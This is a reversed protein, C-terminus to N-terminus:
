VFPYVVFPVAAKGVIALAVLGLGVVFTVILSMRRTVASYEVLDGILRLLHRGFMLLWTDRPRTRPPRESTCWGQTLVMRNICGQHGGTWRSARERSSRWCSYQSTRHGLVHRSALPSLAGSRRDTLSRCVRGSVVPHRGVAAVALLSVHMNGGDTVGTDIPGRVRVRHTHDIVFPPTTSSNSTAWLASPSSSPDATPETSLPQSQNHRPPSATPPPTLPSPWNSSSPPSAVSAGNAAGTTTPTNSGTSSRTNSSQAPGGATSASAVRGTSGTLGASALVARFARSRFQSGRDSHVVVTGDPQRRAIASRLASTALQATMRDALSYGVIRNSFVDKLACCYLKGEGTPHETIDTLWVEDPRGATFDRQVLDDHVAPGPRGKAGRRGKRCTTSWVQEDRCLRWVRREGVRHGARELEDALFRYGFEPDDAHLDVLLNTLHADDYDRDSCPKARWKYFAQTSFGLVGCTLKVAVGEAALEDVLPFMM